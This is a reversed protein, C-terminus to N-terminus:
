INFLRNGTDSKGKGTYKNKSTRITFVNYNNFHNVIEEQLITTAIYLKNINFNILKILEKITKGTNIVSDVIILKKNILESEHNKIENPNNIFILSSKPLIEWIGQAVFLGARMMIIIKFNEDDYYPMDKLSGQAHKNKRFVQNQTSLIERGLIEGMKIHIKSLEHGNLGANRSNSILDDIAYKKNIIKIM